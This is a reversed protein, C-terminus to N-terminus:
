EVEASILLLSEDASRREGSLPGGGQEDRADRLLGGVAVTRGPELVLRTAAGSAAITGDRRLSADFPVLALEVRGDNLVRPRAEFGSEASVYQSTERVVPGYRGPQVRRTTVPVRTGTAIRGSEGDLIRLQGALTGARQGASEDLHVAVRSGGQPWAVNGVRLSGADVSWAVRAGQSALDATRRAEYHLVVTRARVDLAAFLSLASQVAERSGTLVLSNTRRDAVARGEAGMATEALPLLEEATRHRAKYVHVVQAAAPAALAWAVAAFLFLRRSIPM